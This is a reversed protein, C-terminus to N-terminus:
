ANQEELSLYNIIPPKTCLSVSRKLAETNRTDLSIVPDHSQVIVEVVKPLMEEDGSGDLSCQINIVDAGANVLEGSLRKITEPDFETVAKMYGMNRTNLNEAIVIM